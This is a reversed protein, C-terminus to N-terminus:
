ILDGGDAAELRSSRQVVAVIHIVARQVAVTLVDLLTAPEQAASQRIREDVKPATVLRSSILRQCGLPEPLCQGHGAAVAGRRGRAQRTETDGEGLKPCGRSRGLRPAM